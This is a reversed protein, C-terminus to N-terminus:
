AALCRHRHPPGSAPGPSRTGSLPVSYRSPAGIAPRATRGHKDRSRLQSLYHGLHQSVTPVTALARLYTQQRQAQQPDDPRASVLATFYRIRKVEDKPLLARALAELDLWKYPTGRLCGYYLNFADVYVNARM